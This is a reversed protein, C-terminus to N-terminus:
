SSSGHGVGVEAFEEGGEAGVAFEDVDVAGDGELELDGLRHALAGGDGAGGDAEVVVACGEGQDAADVVAAGLGQDREFGGLGGDELADEVAEGAADRRDPDLVGRHVLVDEGAIGDIERLDGDGFVAGVVAAGVDGGADDGAAVGLGAYGVDAVVAELHDVLRREGEVRQGVVAQALVDGLRARHAVGGVAGGDHDADIREQGIGAGDLYGVVGVVVLHRAAQAAGRDLDRSGLRDVEVDRGAGLEHDLELGVEGFLHHLARQALEGAEVGRCCGLRDGAMVCRLLATKWASSVPTGGVSFWM